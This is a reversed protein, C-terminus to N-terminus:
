NFASPNYTFGANAPATWEIDFRVGYWTGDALPGVVDSSIDSVQWRIKGQDEYQKLVAAIIEEGTQETEDIISEVGDADQASSAQQLIYFAGHRRRTRNDGGNDGYLTQCSELVMVQEGAGPRLRTGLLNSMEHLDMVRQYPDISIIVRAFRPTQSAHRIKKHSGALGRFLAVYESHRM